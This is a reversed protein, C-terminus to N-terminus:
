GAVGPLGVFQLAFLGVLLHSVSAGVLSRQREFMWGWYLGCIFAVVSMQISIYLHASLFIANAGVNAEIGARPSTLFSRLLGQGVGRILLEQFPVFVAYAGILWLPRPPSAPDLAQILPLETGQILWAKYALTALLIPLTLVAGELAFRPANRGTLGFVHLPMRVSRLYVVTALTIVLILPVTVYTSPVGLDRSSGVIRVITTVATMGGIILLLFRGIRMRERSEALARDLQEVARDSARRLHDASSQMVQFLVDAFGPRERAVARFDDVSVEAVMVRDVARVTAMRTGGVLASEGFHTPATLRELVHVTEGEGQRVIEVSGEALLFLSEAPEGEVVIAEGPELYRIKSRTALVFLDAEGVSSFLADTSLMEVFSGSGPASDTESM